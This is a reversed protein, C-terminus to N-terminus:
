ARQADTRTDETLLLVPADAHVVAVPPRAAEDGSKRRGDDLDRPTRGSPAYSADPPTGGDSRLFARHRGLVDRRRIARSRRISRRPRWPSRQLRAEDRVAGGM